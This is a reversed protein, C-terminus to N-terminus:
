RSRRRRWRGGGLHEREGEKEAERRLANEWEGVRTLTVSLSSLLALASVM